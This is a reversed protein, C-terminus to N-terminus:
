CATAADRLAGLIIASSAAGPDVHGISRDGLYSARGKTARITKTSEAGEAAAEAMDGLCAGLDAGAAADRRLAELAPILADLMTKEGKEAKGRDRIGKIAATMMEELLVPDLATKGGSVAAARMLATGYLPGSAGGVNSILIMAAKKLNSGIDPDDAPLREKVLSFGRAMNIGHDADGIERDLDTLYDKQEIIRDAILSIARYVDSAM